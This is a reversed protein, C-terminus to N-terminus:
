YLFKKKSNPVHLSVQGDLLDSHHVSLHWPKSCKMEKNHINLDSSQTTHAPSSSARHGLCGKFKLEEQRLRGTPPVCAKMPVCSLTNIGQSSRGESMICCSEKRSAAAGKCMGLEPSSRGTDQSYCTSRLSPVHSQLATAGQRVQLCILSPCMQVPPFNSRDQVLVKHEKPVRCRPSEAERYRERTWQVSSSRQACKHWSQTRLSELHWGESQCDLSQSVSFGVTLHTRHLAGLFYLPLIFGTDSYGVQSCERNINYSFSLWLFLQRLTNINIVFSCYCM